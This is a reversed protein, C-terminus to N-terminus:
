PTFFLKASGAARRSRAGNERSGSRRRQSVGKVPASRGATCLVSLEEAACERKGFKPEGNVIDKREGGGLEGYYSSHPMYRGPQQPRRQRSGDLSRRRARRLRMKVISMIKKVKIYTDQDVTLPEASVHWLVNESCPPTTLSGSYRYLTLLYCNKRVPSESLCM